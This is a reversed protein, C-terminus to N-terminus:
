AYKPTPFAQAACPLELDEGANATVAGKIDTMKPPVNIKLDTVILRGYSSLKTEGTLLHKTVCRFNTLGDSTQVNRM